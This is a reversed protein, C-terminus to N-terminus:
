FLLLVLAGVVFCYVAFVKFSRKKLTKLVISIALVGSAFAFVFGILYVEVGVIFAQPNVYLQLVTAGLVAPVSLLFSFQAVDSRKIGLNVGISITAGSRSIGPLIAFTQAIGILVSERRDINRDKSVARDTLLNLVGTILLMLAAFKVSSFLVEILDKFLFGIIVVPITGLFLLLLYSNSLKFLKKRYYFLVSFLTGFHLIAEFLVGPLDFNPLLSQVIVLHGSSSIPLFETLGQLIGLIAAILLDM